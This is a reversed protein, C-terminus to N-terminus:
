IKPADRQFTHILGGCSECCRIIPASHGDHTGVWVPPLTLQVVVLRRNPRIPLSNSFPPRSLSSLLPAPGSMKQLVFWSCCRELTEVSSAVWNRMTMAAKRRAAVVASTLEHDVLRVVCFSNLCVAFVDSEEREEWGCPHRAFTCQYSRPPPSSSSSIKEAHPAFRVGYMCQDCADSPPFSVSYCCATTTVGLQLLLHHPHVIGLPVTSQHWAAACSVGFSRARHMTTM